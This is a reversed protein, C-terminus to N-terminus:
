GHRKEIYKAHAFGVVLAVLFLATYYPLGDHMSNLFAARSSETKYAALWPVPIPLSGETNGMPFVASSLIVLPYGLVCSAGLSWRAGYGALCAVIPAGAYHIAVFLFIPLGFGIVLVPLVILKGLLFPVLGYAIVPLYLLMYRRYIHMALTFYAAFRRILTVRGSPEASFLLGFYRHM